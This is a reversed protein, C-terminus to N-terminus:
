QGPARATGGLLKAKERRLSVLGAWINAGLLAFSVGLAVGSLRFLSPFAIGVLLLALTAKHWFFQLRMRKEALFVGMHPTKYIGRAMGVQQLHLWCLFPLIKYLMGSIVSVFVGFISLVGLTFSLEPLGQLVPPLLVEFLPLASWLGSALLVCLMALRWFLVTTDAEARRSKAQLRLTVTAFVGLAVALAFGILAIGITGGLFQVISWAVLLSFILPALVRSLRRTYAPTLQFMPVVVYGVGILLTASWGLLGWAAHQATLVAARGQAGLAYVALLYLGFGLTLVLGLLALKLAPITPSTHPKRLVAQLAFFLFVGLSLSLAGAAVQLLVVSSFYFGASLCLAGINLSPHVVAAVRRPHRLGADAAVPLFQFLAGVMVQLLVGVTLLHTLSLVAPSWRSVLLGQGEVLILLGALVGYLPALVFFRAPVSLPPANEFSLLAQM